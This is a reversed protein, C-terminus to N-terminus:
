QTTIFLLHTLLQATRLDPGPVNYCEIFNRSMIRLSYSHHYLQKEQLTKNIWTSKLLKKFINNHYVKYLM